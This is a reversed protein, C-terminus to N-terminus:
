VLDLELQGRNVAGQSLGRELLWGVTEISAGRGQDVPLPVRAEDLLQEPVAGGHAVARRPGAKARVAQQTVAQAHLGPGEEDARGRQRGDSVTSILSKSSPTHVAESLAAHPEYRLSLAVHSSRTAGDGGGGGAGSAGCSLGWCHYSLKSLKASKTPMAARRFPLARASPMHCAM